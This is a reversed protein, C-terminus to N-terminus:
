KRFFWQHAFRHSAFSQMKMDLVGLSLLNQLGWLTRFLCCYRQFPYTNISLPHQPWTIGLDSTVNQLDKEQFLWHWFCFTEHWDQWIQHALLDALLKRYSWPGLSSVSRVSSSKTTEAFRHILAPTKDLSLPNPVHIFQRHMGCGLADSSSSVVSWFCFIDCIELTWRHANRTVPVLIGHRQFYLSRWEVALTMNWTTIRHKSRQMQKSCWTWHAPKSSKSCLFVQQRFLNRFIQLDSSWKFLRCM